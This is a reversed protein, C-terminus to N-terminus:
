CFFVNIFWPLIHKRLEVRPCEGGGNYCMFCDDMHEGGFLPKLPIEAKEKKAKEKNAKKM